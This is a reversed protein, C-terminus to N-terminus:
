RSGAQLQVDPANGSPLAGLFADASACFLLVALAKAARMVMMQAFRATSDQRVDTHLKWSTDPTHNVVPSRHIGLNPIKRDNEQRKRSSLKEM